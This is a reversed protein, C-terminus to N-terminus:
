FFVEFVKKKNFFVVGALAGFGLGRRSAGVGTGVVVGAYVCVGVGAGFSVWVRVWVRARMRVGANNKDKQVRVVSRRNSFIM